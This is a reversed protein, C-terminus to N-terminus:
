AEGADGITILRSDMHEYLRHSISILTRGGAARKLASLVQSETVSDLNATIEDLLLILPDAAVARAISLLQLQGQSFNADRCPTDYGSPLALVSDHLGVLRAAEEAQQRGVSRDFLTIQDAVSGPVMQFSQEVYGFLRRKESDAIRDAPTGFVRVQGSQPSYLGLLLRFITSKGAGTRGALTVRGGREVSLSLGKLVPKEPDYGFVVQDLEVCPEAARREMRPIAHLGACIREPQALFEDIRAVGAVASQVNQIEMGISEIPTFVQGVYAIVTVASGVTLGFFEQVGGGLSSLVMMVAIVGSSILIIVPSYVSDYLNSKEMSRYSEQISRDYRREMFDFKFFSQIMRICRLTEPICNNVRGIAARNEIQAKLMWRQFQRTLLFLLPILSLILIGLGLSKTFLAAVIGLMKCADAAMGVIGNTFLKEVTDVDNVMRSTIKGAEHETFYAAPLRPLKQCMRSRLGHTIKQGFKTILIEKGADALGALVLVGFYSLAWSLEVAQGAALRDVIRGLVQPPALALLVSGAVTVALLSMLGRYRRMASSLVATIASNKIKLKNM